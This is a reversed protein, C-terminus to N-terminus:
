KKEGLPGGLFLHAWWDEEGISDKAKIIFGSPVGFAVGSGKVINNFQTNFKSMDGSQAANISDKWVFPNVIDLVGIAPDQFQSSSYQNKGEIHSAMSRGFGPIWSIGGLALASGWDEADDPLRRNTLGWIISNSIGLALLGYFGAMKNGDKSFINDVVQGTLHNMLKVPQQTFMFLANAMENHRYMGPLSLKNSSPQTLATWERAKAVAGEHGLDTLYRNYVSTWGITKVLTDAAQIGKMGFADFKRKFKQGKTTPHKYNLFDYETGSKITSPDNKHIFDIMKHHLKGKEDKYMNEKFNVFDLHSNMWNGIGAEEVFLLSSPLQRFVINSKLALNALAVNHKYRGVVEMMATSSHLRGPTAIDDIYKKIGDTWSKDYNETITSSVENDDIFTRSTRVWENLNIYHEQKQVYDQWIGWLDTRVPTANEKTTQGRTLIFNKNSATQSQDSGRLMTIALEQELDKKEMTLRILPLYAEIFGLRQGTSAEYTVKIDNYAARLDNAIVDAADKEFKDLESDILGEEGQKGLYEGMVESDIDKTKYLLNTRIDPDHRGVYMYLLDQLTFEHDGLIRTEYMKEGWDYKDDNIAERVSESRENLRKVSENHATLYDSFFLKRGVKGFIKNGWQYAQLRDFNLGKLLNKKKTTTSFVEKQYVLFESKRIEDSILNGKNVENIEIKGLYRLLDVETKLHILDSLSIKPGIIDLNSDFNIDFNIDIGNMLTSAITKANKGQLSELPIGEDDYFNKTIYKKAEAIDTEKVGDVLTVAEQIKEILDARPKSINRSVKQNISEIYKEGNLKLYNSLSKQMIGIIMERKANVSEIYRGETILKAFLPRFSEFEKELEDLYEEKSSDFMEVSAGVPDKMLTDFQKRIPIDGSLLKLYEDSTMDAIRAELNQATSELGSQIRNENFLERAVLELIVSLENRKSNVEHKANIYERIQQNVLNKQNEDKTSRGLEELRSIESNLTEIQLDKEINYDLVTQVDGGASAESVIKGLEKSHGALIGQSDDTISGKIARQIVDVAPSFTALYKQSDTTNRWNTYNTPIELRLSRFQEYSLGPQDGQDQDLGYDVITEKYIRSLETDTLDRAEFYNEFNEEKFTQRAAKFEESGENLIARQGTAEDLSTIPLKGEIQGAIVENEMANVFDKTIIREKQDVVDRLTTQPLQGIEKQFEPDVKINEIAEKATFNDGLNEINRKIINGMVPSDLAVKISSGGIGLLALPATALATKILVEKYTALVEEGTVKFDQFLEKNEDTYISFDNAALDISAQVWETAMESGTIGVGKALVKTLVNNLAMKATSTSAIKKFAGEFIKDIAPIGKLVVLDSWLEATAKLGGAVYSIAKKQNEELGIEEEGSKIKINNLDYYTSAVERDAYVKWAGATFGAPGALGALETPIFPKNDASSVYKILGVIFSGVNGKLLPNDPDNKRLESMQKSHDYIAKFPTTKEVVDVWNPVNRMFEKLSATTLGRKLPDVPPMVSNLMDIKNQILERSGPDDTKMFASKLDDIQIALKGSQTADKIAQNNSRVTSDGFYHRAIEDYNKNVEAMDYNMDQSLYYINELREKENIPDKATTIRNYAFPSELYKQLRKDQALIPDLQEQNYTDVPTAVGEAMYQNLYRDDM